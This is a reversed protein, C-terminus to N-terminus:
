KLEFIVPVYFLRNEGPPWVWHIKVWEAAHKDLLLHGSSEKIDVRSVVGNAGVAVLLLLKGQLQHELAERPYTPSPYRGSGDGTFLPIHLASGPAHARLDIPPASALRASALIVAGEVPVAFAAEAPNAVAVVQPPAPPTETDKADPEAPEPPSANDVTQPQPPEFLVPITDEAAVRAPITFVPRTFLGYIGVALFLAAIAAAWVFKREADRTSQPLCARALESSLAYTQTQDLATIASNAHM